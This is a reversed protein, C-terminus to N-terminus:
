RVEYGALDEKWKRASGEPNDLNRQNNNEVALVVMVLFCDKRFANVMRDSDKRNASSLVVVALSRTSVEREIIGIMAGPFSLQALATNIWIPSVTSPVVKPAVKSVKGDHIWM